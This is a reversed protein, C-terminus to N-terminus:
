LPSNMCLEDRYQMFIDVLGFTLTCGVGNQYTFAFLIGDDQDLLACKVLSSVSAFCGVSQSSEVVKKFCATSVSCLSFSTGSREVGM